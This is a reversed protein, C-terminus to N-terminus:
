PLQEPAFAPELRLACKTQELLDRSREVRRMRCPEDVAVHLRAVDQHCMRFLALVRVDAVEAERTMDGRDAAERAVAAEDPRDVIDRGLLDLAARDVAAGVDVRKAADEVLAQRPRRRLRRSAGIGDIRWRASLGAVVITASEVAAVVAAENPEVLLPESPVGVLRQAALSANALLRSADRRGRGPDARAGVLRLQTSAASALWAGVELATWDHEAGGFPVYVGDGGTWDAPIGAAVGVDAPSGELLQVLDDPLPVAELGEPAPVLVLEVDYGTSLRLVDAAPDASTFAAARANRGVAAARANVSLAARGVEADDALLQALILERQSALPEIAALATALGAEDTAVVLVTGRVGATSRRSRDPADLEPDHALIRRELQQLPPSPEIGLERVLTARTRRFVELAEGQRGSRYLVLMLQSRFRERLPHESVLQELEPALMAHRGLALDAEIRQELAALRVEDLREIAPRAFPEYTLDALPAGRWLDLAQRLLEAAREADGAILAEGAEAALREFVGLDLQESSLRLLYGPSRTEISSVSGLTKRLDSIQRQVQKLATVPAAGAYLDEALRDVSVVRNANLLLIALTGRQKPGGLRFPARDDVVELPGLIRFQLVGPGYESSVPRSGRRGVIRGEVFPAGDHAFEDREREEHACGSYEDRDRRRGVRTAAVAPDDERAEVGRATVIEDLRRVRVATVLLPQQRRAGLDCV